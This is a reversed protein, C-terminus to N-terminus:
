PPTKDLSSLAEAEMVNFLHQRLYLKDPKSLEKFQIGAQTKGRTSEIVYIVKGKCKIAQRQIAISIEVGEGSILRYPTEIKAGGLSLNVTSAVRPRPYIDSFYLASHSVSVRPHGRREM